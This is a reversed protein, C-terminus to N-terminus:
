EEEEEEEGLFGVVLAGEGQPGTARVRLETYGGLTATESVELRWDRGAFSVVEPLARGAQAGLARFEATRNLAVQQAFLREPAGGIQVRAADFAGLAAVTGISLILVAVAVEILTLGHDRTGQILGGASM